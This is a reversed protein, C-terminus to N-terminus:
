VFALAPYTGNLIDGPSRGLWKEIVTAYVARFDTSFKLDGHDLDTLSPHDGYVGGKVGGGVVFLPMATGHDTGNSANQAVRRGFESFTMTLVQKDLGHAALDTYFSLLGNGLYGLLRDQQARQGAHTDFSGISVFVIKTGATSGILKAALALQQAFGNQAYTARNTFEATQRRLVDGGHYADRATQAIMALYPSQGAKAGDYLVGASQKSALDRGTNYAFANLAGIAPVEVHSAVLAAPLTDGLSVAEFMSAPKAGAAFRKDLYRGLWGYQQPRDPSATEWIQTAEFHSRNPSPYGVGQVLAVRGERYLEHLGKLAPNFGIRDDLKLVQNEVVRIAPRVRHYADDSWPVVTNLGDNGGGMQVVVLVNGREVGNAFSPLPPAGAAVQAPARAGAGGLFAVSLASGVFHQRKM